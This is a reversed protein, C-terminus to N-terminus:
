EHQKQSCSRAMTFIAIATHDIFVILCGVPSLTLLDKSGNADLGTDNDNAAVMMLNSESYLSRLQM